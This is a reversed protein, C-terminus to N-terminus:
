ESSPSYSSDGGAPVLVCRCNATEEVPGDPDGPYMLDCGGVSFAQGIPQVQGDAEAHSDRVKADHMSVWQQKTVEATAYGAVSILAALGLVARWSLTDARGGTSESDTVEGNDDTTVGLVGAIKHLRQNVPTATGPAELSFAPALDRAIGANWGAVKASGNMILELHKAVQQDVNTKAVETKKLGRAITALTGAAVGVLLPELDSRLEKDWHAVDFVSALDPGAKNNSDAHRKVAGAIRKYVREHHRQAFAGLIAIQEENHKDLDKALPPKDAARALPTADRVEASRGVTAGTM